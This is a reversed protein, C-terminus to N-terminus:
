HSLRKSGRDRQCITMRKLGWAFCIMCRFRSLDYLHDGVGRAKTLYRYRVGIQAYDISTQM